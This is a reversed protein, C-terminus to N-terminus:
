NKWEIPNVQYYAQLENYLEPKKKNLQDPKEFFAESVVAFFEAPNTAGYKSLITKRHRKKKRILNDYETSLVRAWSVYSSRSKLIPAGDAVGDEQDLQHAFEHYVVNKGDYMNIAGHEASDWALVLEGSNWSEGLSVIEKEAIVGGIDFRQKSFYATPYIYITKLKPYYNTKRNLLLTCAQGAIIIRVEDTIELGQCGIFKKESIFIKIKNQLDIKLVEPLKNYLVFNKKLIDEWEESFVTKIIKTRNMKKLVPKILLLFVIILCISVILVIDM